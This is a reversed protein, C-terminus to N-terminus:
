QANVYVWEDFLPSLDKKSAREFASQLNPSSVTKGMNEITYNRLGTWFAEEGLESRLLNM